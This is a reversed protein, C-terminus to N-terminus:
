LDEAERIVEPEKFLLRSEEYLFKDPIIYKKKRKPDDNAQIVKKLVGEITECDKLFKFATVPGMGGIPHTYDCGCM